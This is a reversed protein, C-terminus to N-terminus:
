NGISFKVNVSSKIIIQGIAGSNIGSGSAMLMNRRNSSSTQNINVIIPSGLSVDLSEAVESAKNKADMIAAKRAESELQKRKSTEFEMDRVNNVGNEVAYYLLKHINEINSLRIIIAKKLVYHSFVRKNEKKSEGRLENNYVPYIELSRSQIDKEPVYLRNNAFRIVKNAIDYAERQIEKLDKSQREIVFHVLAQDPVTKIEAEGITQIYPALNDDAVANSINGLAMVTIIVLFIRQM